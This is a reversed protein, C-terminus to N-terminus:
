KGTWLSKGYDRVWDEVMFVPTLIGMFLKYFPNLELTMPFLKRKDQPTM